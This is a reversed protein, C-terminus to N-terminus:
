VSFSSNRQNLSCIYTIIGVGSLAPLFSGYLYAYTLGSMFFYM